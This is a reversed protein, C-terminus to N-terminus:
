FCSRIIKFYILITCAFVTANYGEFCGEVLSKVCYEFVGEQTASDDFAQEFNYKKDGITVGENTFLIVKRRNTENPLFPRCRVIVKIKSDM